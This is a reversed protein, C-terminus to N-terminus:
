AAMTGRTTQPCGSPLGQSTSPSECSFSPSVAPSIWVEVPQPGWGMELRVLVAIEDDSLGHLQRLEIVAGAAVLREEIRHIAVAADVATMWVRDQATM